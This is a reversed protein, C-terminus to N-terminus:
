LVGEHCGKMVESKTTQSCMCGGVSVCMEKMRVQEPSGITTALGKLNVASGDFVALAPLDVAVCGGPMPGRNYTSLVLLPPTAVLLLPGCPCPSPSPLVLPPLPSPPSHETPYVATM